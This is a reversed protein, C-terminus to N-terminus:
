FRLAFHQKPMEKNPFIIGAHFIDITLNFRFDAQVQNWAKLMDQSWYIDHIVICKIEPCHKMIKDLCFLVAGSRHDADIFCLEPQVSAITSEFIDQITGENIQIKHQLLESFQKTAISALIPSAEITVVRKVKDSGAMYLTNVGLSTGTEVAREIALYDILRNLFASFRTRSLSTKAIYGVTQRYNKGTKLDYLDVIQENKKLNNRLNEVSALRYKKSPIVVQNYLDFLFPSHLAHPGVCRTLYSIYSKIRFLINSM